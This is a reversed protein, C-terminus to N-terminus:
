IENTESEGDLAGWFFLPFFHFFFDLLNGDVFSFIPSSNNKKDSGCYCFANRRLLFLADYM